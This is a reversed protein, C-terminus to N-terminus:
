SSWVLPAAEERFAFRLLHREIVDRGTALDEASPADVKILLGQADADLVVSGFIFRLDGHDGDYVAEVKHAFHKCLQILYKAGQGTEFRATSTLM